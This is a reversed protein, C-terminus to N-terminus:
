CFHANVDILSQLDYGLQRKNYKQIIPQSLGIAQMCHIQICNSLKYFFRKKTWNLLNGMNM